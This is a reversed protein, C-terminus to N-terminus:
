GQGFFGMHQEEDMILVAQRYEEVRELGLKEAARVSGPNDADCTWHVQRLGRAFAQELAACAAITGLSRRRCEPQTFFGLDGTGAAVFDVTAWSAVVPAPGSQDVTVFGFNASRPDSMAQWKALTAAVDDPLELGPVWRLGEDIPEVTFGLPLAARWDYGQGPRFGEGTL